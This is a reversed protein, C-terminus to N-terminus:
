KAPDFSHTITIYTHIEITMSLLADQWEYVRSLQYIDNHFASLTAHLDLATKGFLSIMISTYNLFSESWVEHFSKEFDKYTRSTKRLKLMDDEIGIRNMDNLKDYQLGRMHRLRYLNILKFKNVFIKVIEDQSFDVYRVNLAQVESFIEDILDDEENMSRIKNIASNFAVVAAATATIRAESERRMLNMELQAKKKMLEITKEALEKIQKARAIAEQEKQEVKRRYIEFLQHNQDPTLDLVVHNSPDLSNPNVRTQRSM